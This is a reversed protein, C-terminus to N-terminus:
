SNKLADIEAKLEQIASVLAAIIKSADVGQYLPEGDSDIQDKEGTVAAPFVEQLEHAIFGEGQIQKNKWTFEVPKLQCIRSLGSTMPQVNEKLRYDSSTAYNIATGSSAVEIKGIESPSAGIRFSHFKWGDPVAANFNTELYGIGGATDDDMSKNAAGTTYFAHGTENTVNGLNYKHIGLNFDGWLGRDTYASPISSFSNYTNFLANDVVEDGTTTGFIRQISNGEANTEFVVLDGTAGSFDCLVQQINNGRTGNKFKVVTGPYNTGAASVLFGIESGSPATTGDGFQVVVRSADVTGGLSETWITGINWRGGALLVAYTLSYTATIFGINIMGGSKLYVTSKDIDTSGFDGGGFCRIHGITFEGIPESGSEIRFNNKGNAISVVMGADCGYISETLFVGHEAHYCSGIREWSITVQTEIGVGARGNIYIGHGSTPTGTFNTGNWRAGICLVDELHVRLRRDAFNPPEITLNNGTSASQWLMTGQNLALWSDNDFFDPPLEGKLTLSQAITLGTHKYFGAPILLTGGKPTADIAAQLAYTVDPASATQNRAVVQLRDAETMYDFVNVPSGQIMLYTAKTLSM